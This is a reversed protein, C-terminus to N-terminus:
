RAEQHASDSDTEVEDPGDDTEHQDREDVEPELAHSQLSDHEERSNEPTSMCTTYGVCM